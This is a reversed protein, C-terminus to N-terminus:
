LVKRVIKSVYSQANLLQTAFCPAVAAKGKVDKELQCFGVTFNLNFGNAIDHPAGLM